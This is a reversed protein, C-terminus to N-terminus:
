DTFTTSYKELLSRRDPKGNALTAIEPVFHFENPVMYAPLNSRCTSSVTEKPAAPRGAWECIAVLYMDVIMDTSYALVIVQEMDPFLDEIRSEIEQLSVLFGLRNICNDMRGAIRFRGAKGGVVLDRTAYWPDTVADGGASSGQVFRGGSADIYCEFGAPHRCFLEGEGEGSVKVTVGPLPEVMGGTREEVSAEPSSTAIAGMETCGYLNILKGFRNEFRRYTEKKIGEGATIHTGGAPIKKDLALLMRCLAPTLLTVGPRHDNLRTILKIVNTKGILIIGAGSLLGPLLGAGFGYMHALPVPILISSRNSLGFRDICGEANRILNESTFYIFKPRGTTGSSSFLVAGSGPALKEHQKLHAPNDEIKLFKSHGSAEENGAGEVSISKDCFPPIVPEQASVRPLLAFNIRNELLYLILLVDVISNNPSFGLCQIREKQRNRFLVELTELARDVEGYGAFGTEDSISNADVWRGGFFNRIEERGNKRGGKM